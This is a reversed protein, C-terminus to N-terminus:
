NGEKIKHDVFKDIAETPQSIQSENLSDNKGVSIGSNRQGKTLMKRVGEPRKYSTNSTNLTDTNAKPDDLKKLKRPRSNQREIPKQMSHEKIAPTLNKKMMEIM